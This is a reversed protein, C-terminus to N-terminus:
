GEQRPYGFSLHSGVLTYFDNPAHAAGGVCGPVKCKDSVSQVVKYLETTHQTMDWGEITTKQIDHLIIVELRWGNIKCEGLRYINFLAPDSLALRLETEIQTFDPKKPQM